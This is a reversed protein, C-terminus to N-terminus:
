LEVMVSGSLMDHIARRENNTTIVLFSLWGFAIKFAYRVYAQFINIRDEKNNFKRVRIGDVSNGITGGFTMCLPEYVVWLLIFAAARIWTPPNEIINLISGIIVMAIVIVLSDILISQIRKQLSPYNYPDIEEVFNTSIVEEDLINEEPNQM